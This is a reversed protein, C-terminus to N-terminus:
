ITLEGGFQMEDQCVFREYLSDFDHPKWPRAM